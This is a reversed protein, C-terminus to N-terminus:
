GPMNRSNRYSIILAEKLFAARFYKANLHGKFYGLKFNDGQRNVLRGRSHGKSLHDGAHRLFFFSMVSSKM